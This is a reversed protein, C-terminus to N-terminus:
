IEASTLFGDADDILTRSGDPAVEVIGGNVDISTYSLGEAAKGAHFERDGGPQMLQEELNALAIAQEPASLNDYRYEAALAEAVQQLRVGQMSELARGIRAWYEIQATTSRHWLAAPTRASDVLETSLKLATAM